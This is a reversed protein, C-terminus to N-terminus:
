RVGRHFHGKTMMPLKGDGELFRRSDEDHAYVRCFAELIRRVQDANELTFNLRWSAMELKQVEKNEGLLGFPLSNYIMNYCPIEEKTNGSKWPSCCCQVPFVNGYRDKFAASANAKDCGALDQRVCQASVMVPLYGYILMETRHNNRHSLEGANLELPATIRMVSYDDFFGAAQDNWTYLSHDLVSLGAYGLRRMLAFGELNHVLICSLGQKTLTDLREPLDSPMRGRVMWPLSLGIEPIEWSTRYRRRREAHFEREKLAKRVWEMPLYVGKVDPHGLALEAAEWTECSVYIPSGSPLPACPVPPLGSFLAPERRYPRCLEERLSLLAKRRLDNLAKVPVFLKEEMQLELKEWEFETDGTKKLQRLVTDKSLPQNKAQMPADGYEVCTKEGASVSLEMPAGEKLLVSGRIKRVARPLDGEERMEKKATSRLDIMERSNHRTYYGTGSGGRSFLGLLAERDAPDVQYAEEGERSLRDLYKRYIATVGATYAPQKMRGEIKFSSIGARILDPLIDVACLDKMSILNCAKAESGGSIGRYALRCPQACRGRNGSRGGILSSMLCMGSFSYCMAGHIFTEIELSSVDHMHRIEELTLERAPVVRCFGLEELFAMGEPGTVAMQTSAHLPLDPFASKLARVVGFDQVLVADVGQRVFPTLYSILESELERNKLLTNVTLYLKKGHIHCLDIARLLEEEDFNRAYARAGFVSGGLYVADAGAGLAAELGEFSGAPALLEPLFETMTTNTRM